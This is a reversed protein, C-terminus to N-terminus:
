RKVIRIDSTGEFPQGSTTSGILTADRSKKLPYDGSNSTADCVGVNDLHLVADNFGDDNLDEIHIKNHVETVAVGNLELFILDITSVDFTNSGFVAVPVSGKASKCNVSSPDSGPKIDIDVDVPLCNEFEVFYGVGGGSAFVRDNWLGSQWNNEAYDEPGLAGHPFDNPEGPHWNTYAIPTSDIWGYGGAPAGGPTLPITKYVPDQTFGIFGRQNSAATDAIAEEAANAFTALHGPNGNVSKTQADVFAGGFTLFVQIYAYCNGNLELANEGSPQVTFTPHPAYAPISAIPLILLITALFTIAIISKTM